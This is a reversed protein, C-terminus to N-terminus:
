GGLALQIIQVVGVGVAVFSLLLLLVATRDPPLQNRSMSRDLSTNAETFTGDM